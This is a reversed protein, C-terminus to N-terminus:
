ALRAGTPYSVDYLIGCQGCVVVSPPGGQCGTGDAPSADVGCESLVSSRELRIYGLEGWTASWSNRVLWYDKGTAQDTGYGVLQVVHNIDINSMNSCGDFVGGSYHHWLDAQVNVALPGTNALADIVAAYSNTALKVYGGVTAVAPTGKSTNNYTCPLTTGNYSQYPYTWESAMGNQSIYDFALEPVSGGCGGVGGCDHPNPACSTLQQPSLVLLSKNTLAVYSEIMQTSAFAWCSGCRGQDKVDTVVGATRWDVSAPLDKRVAARAVVDRNAYRARSLDKRYGLRVKFEETTLDTFANVGKSWSRKQSNHDVIERLNQEFVARRQEWEASGEVYGKRFDKVYQDFTYKRLDSPTAFALGCLVLVCFALNPSLM